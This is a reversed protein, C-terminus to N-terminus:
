GRDSHTSVHPGHDLYQRIQEAHQLVHMPIGFAIVGYPTGNYRHTTPLPLVATEESLGEITRSVRGRCWDLYGLVEAKTFVRNAEGGIHQDFPPPPEWAEFGGTLDYDLLTLAHHALLWPSSGGIGGGPLNRTPAEPWIDVEWLEEPWDSLASEMHGLAFEFSRSLIEGYIDM